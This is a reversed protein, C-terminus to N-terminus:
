LAALALQPYAPMKKSIGPNENNINAFFDYFVSM